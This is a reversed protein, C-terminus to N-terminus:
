WARGNFTNAMAGRGLATGLPAAHLMASMGVQEKKSDASHSHLLPSAGWLASSDWGQLNAPSSHAFDSSLQDLALLLGPRETQIGGPAAELWCRWSLGEEGTAMGASAVDARSSCASTSIHHIGSERQHFEGPKVLVQVAIFHTLGGLTVKVGKAPSTSCLCM